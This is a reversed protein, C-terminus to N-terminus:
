VRGGLEAMARLQASRAAFAPNSALREVAVPMRYMWNRGGTTGPVNIRSYLGFLDQWVVMVLRSSSRYLATLMADLVCRDLRNGVLKLHEPFEMAAALRYREALILSHWWQALSETDHTGTAAVSLEAFRAPPIFREDARGWNDREWRFIKLGPVGLRAISARVWPPVAGLDEAILADPGLEEEIMAMFKEGQALQQEEEAPSFRGLDEGTAFSYTRYFGVLHDIRVLDFMEATQRARMRWWKFNDAAMRQWNPLPLGWRQGTESFADPPAGVTRDLDFLEQHSWVDASDRAPCFALDGGIKVDFRKRVSDLARWQRWALYQWYRYMRLETDLEAALEALARPDRRALAIPWSEWSSWRFREKLARFLAYDDLWERNDAAFSEFRRHEGPDGQAQFHEFAAKLLPLRIAWLEARGLSPRDAVYERARRFDAQPVGTLGAMGIYLPDIAFVSCASYPSAEGPAPESLPLLQVMRHGIRDMWSALHALAPIEGRGLDTDSRLASLPLVIAACRM